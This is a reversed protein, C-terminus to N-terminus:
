ENGILSKLRKLQSCSKCFVSNAPSGCAACYKLSGSSFSKELMPKMGRFSAAISFMTGPLRGEMEEVAHRFVNRKAEGSFPCCPLRCFEIGSFEAFMKVESEPCDYLPKIRPVFGKIKRVGAIPGLRALRPLDNSAINMLISQCEDDLNHGTAIKGAGLELAKKNLLLRRFVGCFSCASQEANEDPLHQMADSMTVGLEEKMRVVEYPIDLQGCSKQAASLSHERYGSIGEDVMIATISNSRGFINKLLHLTTLSDKGGSVAVAIKEGAEVLHNARITKRVRKEFFRLFHERCFRHPGYRLSVEAKKRCSVCSGAGEGAKSVGVM